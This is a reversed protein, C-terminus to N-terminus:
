IIGRGRLVTLIKSSTNAGAEDMVLAKESIAFLVEDGTEV